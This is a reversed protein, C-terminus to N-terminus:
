PGNGALLAERTLELRVAADFESGVFDVTYGAGILQLFLSRRYGTDDSSGLTGRTISDGLPMIRYVTNPEVLHHLKEGSSLHRQSTAAGSAFGSVTLVVLLYRFARINWM